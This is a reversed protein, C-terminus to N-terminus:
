LGASRRKRLQAGCVRSCTAPTPRYKNQKFTAGCIPCAADVTYRDVADAAARYCRRSCDHRSSRSAFFRDAEIGCWNCVIKGPQRGEWSRKSQERHWALGIPSRHWEAALPRIQDAWARKRERHPAAHVAAHEKPTLCILNTPDNNLTDWDEHHIHCGEPIPGYISKWVERHLMNKGSGRPASYYNRQYTHRADPYRTYRVGDFRIVERRQKKRM